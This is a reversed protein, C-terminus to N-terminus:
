QFAYNIRKRNQGEGLRENKRLGIEIVIEMHTVTHKLIIRERPMKHKVNVDKGYRFWSFHMWYVANQSIENRFQLLEIIIIAVQVSTPMM